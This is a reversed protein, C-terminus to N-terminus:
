KGGGGRARAIADLEDFFLVCPSASRAKDFVGRVNAESEGFRPHIARNRPEVLPGTKSSFESNRFAGGLKSSEGFISHRKREYWM